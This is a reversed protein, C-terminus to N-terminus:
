SNNVETALVFLNDMAEFYRQQEEELNNQRALDDRRNQMWELAWGELSYSGQAHNNPYRDMEKQNRFLNKRNYTYCNFYVRNALLTLLTQFVTYFNRKSESEM